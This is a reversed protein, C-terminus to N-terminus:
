NRQPAAAALVGVNLEAWATTYEWLSGDALVAFVEGGGGNNEGSLGAFRGTSAQSWLGPTFQWLNDPGAATIAFVQDPGAAAVGLITGSPSLELWSDAAFGPPNYEWLSQDAMLAYAVAQGESNLGASVGAFDNTSLLSWGSPTYEWLNHTRRDRRLCTDDHGSSDTVRASAVPHDGVPSLM